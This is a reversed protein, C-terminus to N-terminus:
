IGGRKEICEAIQPDDIWRSPLIAYFLKFNLQSIITQIFSSFQSFPPNCFAVDTNKSILNTEFFDTGVLNISQKRYSGIHLTSKEIALKTVCIRDSNIAELSEAISNLVRGDGSGIDLVRIKQDYSHSFEHTKLITEIDGNIIQLQEATTPYFEFDQNASKLQEVTALTAYPTPTSITM